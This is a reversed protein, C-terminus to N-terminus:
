VDPGAYNDSLVLDVGNQYVTYVQQIYLDAGAQEPQGYAPVALHAESHATMHITADSSMSAIRIANAGGEALQPFRELLDSSLDGATVDSIGDGEMSSTIRATHELTNLLVAGIPGTLGGEVASFIYVTHELASLLTAEIPGTLGGEITSVMASLIDAPAATCEPVAPVAVTDHIMAAQKDDALSMVLLALGHLDEDYVLQLDVQQVGMSVAAAVAASKCGAGVLYDRVLDGILAAAAVGTNIYSVSVNQHVSLNGPRVSVAVGSTRYVVTVHYDKQQAGITAAAAIATAASGVAIQCDWQHAGCIARVVLGAAFHDMRVYREIHENGLVAYLATASSDAFVSVYESPDADGLATPLITIKNNAYIKDTHSIEGGGPLDLVKLTLLALDDEELPVVSVDTALPLIEGAYWFLEGGKYIRTIRRKGQYASDVIM